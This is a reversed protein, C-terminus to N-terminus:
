PHPEACEYGPFNTRPQKEHQDKTPGTKASAEKRLERKGAEAFPLRFRNDMVFGSAAGSGCKSVFILRLRLLRPQWCAELDHISM